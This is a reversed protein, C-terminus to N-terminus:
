GAAVRAIEMDCAVDKAAKHEPASLPLIGEKRMQKYTDLRVFLSREPWVYAVCDLMGKCALGFLCGACISVFAVTSISNEDKWAAASAASASGDQAASEIDEKVDQLTVSIALAYFVLAYFFAMGLVVKWPAPKFAYPHTETFEERAAFLRLSSEVEAANIAGAKYLRRLRRTEVTDPADVFLAEGAPTLHDDYRLARAEQMLALWHTVPCFHM